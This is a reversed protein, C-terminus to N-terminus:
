MLWPKSVVSPRTTYAFAVARSLMSAWKSSTTPSYKPFGAPKSGGWAHRLFDFVRHYKYGTALANLEGHRQPSWSAFISQILKRHARSKIFGSINDRQNGFRNVDGSANPSLLCEM